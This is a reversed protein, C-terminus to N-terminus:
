GGASCFRLRFNGQQRTDLHGRLSTRQSMRLHGGGARGADAGAKQRRANGAGGLLLDARLSKRDMSRRGCRDSSLLEHGGSAVCPRARMIAIGGRPPARSMSSRRKVPRDARQYRTAIAKTVAKRGAM